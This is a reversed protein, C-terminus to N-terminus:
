RVEIGFYDIALRRLNRNSRLKRLLRYEMCRVDNYSLNLYTATKSRSYGKRYIYFLTMFEIDSLTANLESWVAMQLMNTEVDYFGECVTALDSDALADISIFKLSEDSLKLERYQYSKLRLPYSFSLGHQYILHSFCRRFYSVFTFSSNVDYVRVAEILAFYALQLCDKRDEYRMPVDKIMEQILGINEIYLSALNESVDINQKIRM